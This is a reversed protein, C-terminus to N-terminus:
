LVLISCDCSFINVIIYSQTIQVWMPSIKTPETVYTYVTYSPINVTIKIQRNPLQM